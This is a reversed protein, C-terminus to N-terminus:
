KVDAVAAKRAAAEIEALERAIQERTKRVKRERIADDVVKVIQGVNLGCCQAAWQASQRQLDNLDFQKHLVDELTPVFVRADAHSRFTVRLPVPEKPSLRLPPAKALAQKIHDLDSRDLPQAGRPRPQAATAPAASCMVLATLLLLVFFSARRSSRVNRTLRM